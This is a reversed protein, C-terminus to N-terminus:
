ISLNKELVGIREEHDELKSGIKDIKEELRKATGDINKNLDIRTEEIKNDTAEIKKNLSKAVFEIKKTLDDKIEQRDKKAEELRNGFENYGELVLDMKSNIDEFLIEYREKRRNKDNMNLEQSNDTQINIIM